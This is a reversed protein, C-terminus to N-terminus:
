NEINKNKNENKRIDEKNLGEKGEFEGKEGKRQM